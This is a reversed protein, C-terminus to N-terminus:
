INWIGDYHINDKQLQGKFKGNNADFAGDIFKDLRFFTTQSLGYLIIKKEFCLLFIPQLNVDDTKSIQYIYPRKTNSEPIRISQKDMLKVLNDMYQIHNKGSFVPFIFTDACTRTMAIEWNLLYGNYFKLDKSYRIAKQGAALVILALFLYLCFASFRNIHKSFGLM